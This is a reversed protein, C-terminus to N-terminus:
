WKRGVIGRFFQLLRWSRSGEVRQNFEMYERVKERLERERSVAEGELADLREGLDRERELSEALRLELDLALARLEGDGRAERTETDLVQFSREPM